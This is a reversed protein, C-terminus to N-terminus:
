SKRLKEEVKQRKMTSCIGVDCRDMIEDDAITHHLLLGRFEKDVLLQPAIAVTREHNRDLSTHSTHSNCLSQNLKSSCTHM